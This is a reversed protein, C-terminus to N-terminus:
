KNNQTKLLKVIDNVNYRKLSVLIIGDFGTQMRKEKEIFDFGKPGKYGEILKFFNDKDLLEGGSIFAFKKNSFDYNEKKFISDAFFTDLFSLECKNLVASKDVGCSDQKIKQGKSEQAAMQFLAILLYFILKGTKSVRM